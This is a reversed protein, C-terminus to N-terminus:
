LGAADLRALFARKRSHRAWLQRYRGTFADLADVSRALCALDSVLVAAEAYPGARMAAALVEVRAWAEDQHGRLVWDIWPM